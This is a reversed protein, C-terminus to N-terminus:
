ESKTKRSNTPEHTEGSLYERTEKNTQEGKWKPLFSLEKGSVLFLM